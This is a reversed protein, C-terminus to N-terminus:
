PQVAEKKDAKAEETKAEKPGGPLAREFFGMFANIVLIAFCAGLEYIGFYRFLMTSVGLLIGYVVRAPTSKPQTGPECVLFIAAFIMAGSLLEYGVVELRSLLDAFEVIEVVYRPFVLAFLAATGLFCLPTVLNIRGRVLLFIGCALLVATSTVGVPGGYNGLFLNWLDISPLGGAKLAYSPGEVLEAGTFRWGALLQSFDTTSNVLWVQPSPYRLVHEPWSVAAMCFGVAAPHFPYSEFGGFAEKAVLVAMIVAAVVVRYPVSAPLMLVLILAFTVSSYETKDYPRSRLLASIRDCIRATLLAVLALLLCRPGYYFFAMLYLPLMMVIMDRNYAYGIHVKRITEDM